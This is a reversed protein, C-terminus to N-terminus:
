DETLGDLATLAEDYEALLVANAIKTLVEETRANLADKRLEVILADVTGVDQLLLAQRLKQVTEADVGANGDKKTEAARADLAERIREAVNSLSECFEGIQERITELDGCRGAEELREAMRFIEAAGISASASKLAHAQTIFLSIPKADPDAAFDRLFALREDADRRYLELVKLYGKETGGTAILGAATDLGDIKLSFSPTEEVQGASAAPVLKVRKELPIWKEVLENLKPIEIPKALFDDLGKSLFLERMGSIANATLMVIPLDRFREGPLARIRATAEIGDVDPMMHDMLVLDYAHAKVMEVAEEGSLCTHIEMAYPALLGSAVQVNTPVDDVILIKAQPATFSIRNASSHRGDAHIDMVGLPPSGESKQLLTATFLSGKGYESRVAVDGGMARCLRRTISLGLGTGEISRNRKENVRVFDGFLNSMDEHKIGIGSDEVAFTLKVGDPGICEGRASFKIFGKQTYKVANSLLNLLVQRVRTEDGIMSAPLNADIDTILRISKDELRVKIITLVDNLLSATEYPVLNLRLSGAEIKSFDLIDNIIALLSHGAQKIGLIYELAQPNGFDRHALESMGIIANMPTRIEHSMSALFDSKAKSARAANNSEELLHRNQATIERIMFSYLIFGIAILLIAFLVQQMIRFRIEKYISEAEFDCGIVGVVDGSSNLIPMYTSILWGWTDQFDMECSQYSKTEYTRLYASDYTSIDEKEGLPSFSKGDPDESDIMFQHINGKYPAMTYLYLCQVEIKLARLKLRTEEYFPDFPDLSKSLREFADGDIFASARKVIPLGFRSATLASVDTIQQVSTFIIVSFISLVFLIFFFTFRVKLSTSKKETM